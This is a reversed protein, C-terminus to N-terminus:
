ISCESLVVGVFGDLASYCIRESYQQLGVALAKCLYEAKNFKEVNQLTVVLVQFPSGSSYM